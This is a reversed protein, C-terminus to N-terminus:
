KNVCGFSTLFIYHASRRFETTIFQQNCTVVRSCCFSLCLFLCLCMCVYLYVCLCVSLCVSMCVSLCFSVSEYVLLHILCTTLQPSLRVVQWVSVCLCMYVCMCVHRCVLMCGTVTLIYVTCMFVVVLQRSENLWINCNAFLSASNWTLSIWLGLLYWEAM